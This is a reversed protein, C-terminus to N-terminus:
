NYEAVCDGYAVKKYWFDGDHTTEPEVSNAQNQSVIYRISLPNRVASCSDAFVRLRLANFAVTVGGLVTMQGAHCLTRDFQKLM